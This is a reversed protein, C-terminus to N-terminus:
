VSLSSPLADSVASVPVTPLWAYLLAAATLLSDPPGRAPPLSSKNGSPFLQGLTLFTLTHAPQLPTKPSASSLLHKYIKLSILNPSAM